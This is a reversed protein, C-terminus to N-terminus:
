ARKMRERMLREFENEEPEGKQPLVLRCRSTVTLGLDNACDRCQQFYKGQVSSWKVAADPKGESIAFQIHNTAKSYLEHAILYRALTDRDLKSFIGLDLLQRSLSNFEKRHNAPLWDPARVQKPKPARVETREREAKEARSLHSKGKAELLTLPEKHRPM